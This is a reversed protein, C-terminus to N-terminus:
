AWFPIYKSLRNSKNDPDYGKIMNEKQTDSIIRSAVSYNKEDIKFRERLSQYTM